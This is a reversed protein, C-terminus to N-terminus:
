FLYLCANYTGFSFNAKFSVGPRGFIRLVLVLGVKATVLSVSCIEASVAAGWSFSWVSM